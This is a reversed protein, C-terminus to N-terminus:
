NMGNRHRYIEFGHHTALLEYHQRVFEIIKATHPTNYKDNPRHFILKPPERALTALADNLDEDDVIGIGSNYFRFPNRRRTLFYLEPNMPNAFITQEPPVEREVLDVLHRYVDAEAAEISVSVRALGHSPTLEIREGRFIDGLSRSLPQAAHYHLAVAALAGALAVPGYRRWGTGDTTMWLVGVLTIGTSYFVYVPIQFHVSVLAYFVGLFPLPHFATGARKELLLGRLVLYGQATALMLVIAWFLSNIVEVANGSVVV